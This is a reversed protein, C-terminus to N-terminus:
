AQDGPRSRIDSVDARVLVIRRDPSELRLKGHPQAAAGRYPIDGRAASRLLPTRKGSLNCGPVGATEVGGRSAAYLRESGSREGSVARRRAKSADRFTHM